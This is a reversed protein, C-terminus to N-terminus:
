PREVRGMLAIAGSNQDWVLFMFARDVKFSLSNESLFTKSKPVFRVGEPDSGKEDIKFLSQHIGESISFSPQKTILSFNSPSAFLSKFMGKQLDYQQNVRFRPLTLRMETPKLDPLLKQWENWSWASEAAAFDVGEKPVVVMLAFRPGSGEFAYPLVVIKWQEQELYSFTGQTEMTMVSIQQQSSTFFPSNKSNRIEFPFLWSGKVTAATTLVAQTKQFFHSQGVLNSIKGNTNQATWINIEKRAQVEESFQRIRGLDQKFNSRFRQEFTSSVEVEKEIWLQDAVLLATESRKLASSLFVSKLLGASGLFSLPYGLFKQAELATTGEAGAALMAMGLSLSFPSFCFNEKTQKITQYFNFGLQNSGQIVIQVPLQDVVEKENEQGLLSGLFLFIFIGGCWFSRM